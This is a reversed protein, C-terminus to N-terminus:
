SKASNVYRNANKWKPESIRMKLVAFSWPAAMLGTRTAQSHYQEAGEPLANVHEGYRVADEKTQISVWYM